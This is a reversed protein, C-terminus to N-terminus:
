DSRLSKGLAEQQTSKWHRPLLTYLEEQPIMDMRTLVDLFWERPNVGHLTCTNLM